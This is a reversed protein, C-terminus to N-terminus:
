NILEVFTTNIGLPYSERVKGDYGVRIKDGIQFTTDNAVSLNVSVERGSKLIKGEEITVIAVNQDTIKEITGTFTEKTENGETKDGNSSSCASLLGILVIAFVTFKIKKDM